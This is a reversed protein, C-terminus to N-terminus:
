FPTIWGVGLTTDDALPVLASREFARAHPATLYLVAGTALLGLGAGVGLNALNARHRARDVRLQGAPSCSPPTRVCEGSAHADNWASRAAIGFGLGVVALAAGGAGLGLGLRRRSRGRDAVVRVSHALRIDVEALKGEVAVVDVSRETRGPAMAVIRTSGPDVFVPSGFLAPDVVRGDRKVVLGAPREAVRIVLRPLRSELTHAREAAMDARDDKAGRAVDAAAKFAAWASTWKGEREYCDALNLRTGLAPDLRMSAEFKPCAKAIDGAAVLARAEAFLQEAAATSDSPNATTTRVAAILILFSHKMM